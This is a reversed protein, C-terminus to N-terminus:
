KKNWSKLLRTIKYQYVKGNISSSYHGEIVAPLKILEKYHALIEEKSIDLGNNDIIIITRDKVIVEDILKLYCDDFNSENMAAIIDNCRAKAIFTKYSDDNLLEYEKKLENLHKKIEKYQNSLITPDSNDDDTMKKVIKALKDEDINILEKVKNIRESKSASENIKSLTKDLEEKISSELYYEKLAKICISSIEDYRIPKSDCKTYIVNRRNINCAFVDHGNKRSQYVLPKGCNGCYVKTSLPNTKDPRLYREEDKKRKIILQVLDFSDRSIIAPHHNKVLYQEAYKGDKNDKAEHSLYDTVVTKQLIMDGCYKENQLIFMINQRHWKEKGSGTLYHNAELYAIIEGISKNALYLNFIARVIQAQEEDIIINNNEDITYGLFKDTSIHWEGKQMKKRFSWKVNDSINKSEQQSISSHVTILMDNDPNISNLSEKEFYINIGRERLERVISLIDVTNRGFRSISKVYIMDILGNKADKVMANLGDRHKLCTGTIGKDSYMGVFEYEPNEGILKTYYNIQNEFSHIQEDKKSSVRAYAAVRKKKANLGHSIIYQSPSAVTIVEKEMM